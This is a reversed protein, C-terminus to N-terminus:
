RIEGLVRVHAIHPARVRWGGKRVLSAVIRVHTKYLCERTARLATFVEPRSM